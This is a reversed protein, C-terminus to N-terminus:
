SHGYLNIDEWAESLRDILQQFDDNQPYADPIEKGTLESAEFYFQIDGYFMAYPHDFDYEDIEHGFNAYGFAGAYRDEIEQCAEILRDVESQDSYDGSDEYRGEADYITSIRTAKLPEFKFMNYFLEYAVTDTYSGGTLRFQNILQRAQDLEFIGRPINNDIM